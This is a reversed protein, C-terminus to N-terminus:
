KTNTTANCEGEFDAVLPEVVTTPFAATTDNVNGVLHQEPYQDLAAFDEAMRAFFRRTLDDSITAVDGGRLALAAAVCPAVAAEVVVFHDPQLHTDRWESFAESGKRAARRAHLGIRKAMRNLAEVLMLRHARRLRDQSAEDEDPPPEPEDDNSPANAPM